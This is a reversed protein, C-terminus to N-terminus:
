GTVSAWSKVSWVAEGAEGTIITVSEDYHHTHCPLSSSPAFQGYGGCIGVAGFRGAFSDSFM